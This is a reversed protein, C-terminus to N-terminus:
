LKALGLARALVAAPIVGERVLMRRGQTLDIVTSPHGGPVEGADLIRDAQDLITSSISAVSAPPPAGALNASTSVIPIGSLIALQRAVPCSSVRVAVSGTGALAPCRLWSRAPLVLSLPGPWFERSLREFFRRTEGKLNALDHAESAHGLLLIFPASAGRGKIRGIRAVAERNFPDAGLGYLTETPHIVIGGARLLIAAEILAQQDRGTPDVLVRRKNEQQRSAAENAGMSM